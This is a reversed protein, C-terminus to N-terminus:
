ITTTGILTHAVTPIKGQRELHHHLSQVNDVRCDIGLLEERFIDLRSRRNNYFSEDSVFAEM